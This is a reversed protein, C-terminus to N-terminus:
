CSSYSHGQGLSHKISLVKEHINGKVKELSRPFSDPSFNTRGNSLHPSQPGSTCIGGVPLTVSGLGSHFDDKRVALRATPFLM